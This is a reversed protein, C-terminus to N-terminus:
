KNRNMLAEIDDIEKIINASLVKCGTETILLDDEIRVGIGEEELYLGPEDSIVCGPQLPMDPLAIDHTELGITHSVGHWYYDRVTKGNELLGINKLEVEYFELVKNNLEKTTMGPKAIEAIMKNARLVIDYIQRQRDTFHGNTPFTRSIDACYHGVAAGLDCLVLENEESKRNNEGYHLVTANKGSAMITHFAHDAQNCKLVYDFYAELENEWIYEHCNSLMTQIGANTIEIAKCMKALEDTDKIMRQRCINEYINQMQVGPQNKVIENFLATTPTVQTISMKTLDGCLTIPHLKGQQNLVTSITPMLSETFRIDNIQSIERAEQPLIRGGVWKAQSPDFPEIFLMEQTGTPLKVLVLVLNERDIGTYYFFSRDVKFPYKEDGISYPASGAMLVAVSYEPLSEVLKQRRTKYM